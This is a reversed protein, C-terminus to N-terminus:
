FPMQDGGDDYPAPDPAAPPPPPPAQEQPPAAQEQAKQQAYTDVAVKGTYFGNGNRDARPQGTDRDTARWLAVEYPVGDIVFKMKLEPMNPSKARAEDPTKYLQVKGEPDYQGQGQPMSHGKPQQRNRRFDGKSPDANRRPDIYRHYLKDVFERVTAPSEPTRWRKNQRFQKVRCAAMDIAKPPATSHSAHLLFAARSPTTCADCQRELAIRQGVPLVAGDRKAEIWVFLRDDFDLFGDLDTPYINGFKLGAFDCKQQLQSANRVESQGRIRM